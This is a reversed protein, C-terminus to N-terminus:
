EWGKKNLAKLAADEEAKQKSPGTGEAVLEEGIYAGMTFEKDHDPGEENMVKYHPTIETKEQCIEQFRSKSDIHLGEEIIHDLKELIFQEILKESAEYGLDLYVAGIVAEMVNALIYSKERGGSKEEGKSLFLYQGLGLEAAVEALRKGKVLASRFSTMKGEDKEPYKYFLHRTVALELVADGLFELRENDKLEEDRHENIYSKHVFARNIMDTTKFKIGLTGELKKYDNKQM